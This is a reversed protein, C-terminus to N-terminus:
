AGASGPRPRPRVRSRRGGPPRSRAARERRARRRAPAPEITLTVPLITTGGDAPRATLSTNYFDEEAHITFDYTTSGASFMVHVTQFVIPLRAGPALWAQVSGTADTVTASLLQGVNSLWWLGFESSLAPLTRHLYPNDDIALDSERGITFRSAPRSRTGSAASSSRAAAEDAHM